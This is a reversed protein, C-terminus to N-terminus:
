LISGDYLQGLWVGLDLTRADEFAIVFETEKVM